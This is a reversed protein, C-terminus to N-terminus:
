PDVHTLGRQLGRARPSLGLKLEGAAARAFEGFVGRQILERASRPQACVYGLVHQTSALAHWIWPRDPLALM